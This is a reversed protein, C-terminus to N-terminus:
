MVMTSSGHQSHLKTATESPDSYFPPIIACKTFMRSRARCSDYMFTGFVELLHGHTRCQDISCCPIGLEDFGITDASVTKLTTSPVYFEIFVMSLTNLQDFTFCLRFDCFM